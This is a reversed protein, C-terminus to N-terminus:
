RGIIVATSSVHTLKEAGTVRGFWSGTEYCLTVQYLRAKRGWSTTVGIKNEIVALGDDEHPECNIVTAEGEETYPVYVGVDLPSNEQDYLQEEFLATLNHVAHSGTTRTLSGELLQYIANVDDQTLKYPDCDSDGSCDSYFQTREKLLSVASFSLRDLKGKMALKDVIDGTFALVLSFFTAIMVFEVTFSGAQKQKQKQKQKTTLSIM